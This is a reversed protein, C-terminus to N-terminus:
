GDKAAAAAEVEPPEEGGPAKAEEDVPAAATPTWVEGQPEKGAVNTNRMTLVYATVQKVKGGGLSAGWEPMGKATRGRLITQFVDVPSGGALWYEDTLNPGIRGEGSGGHCKVCFTQYTAKGASVMLEDTTMEELQEDTVDGGSDLAELKAQTYAEIPSPAWNFTEYVAFYGFGFIITGFLSWLWWNPLQNDAEEIGDYEHVIEGQIEDHRITDSM